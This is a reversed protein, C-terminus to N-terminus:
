IYLDKSIKSTAEKLISVFFEKKNEDLRAAPLSVSVSAVAKGDPDLIPVAICILGKIYEEDDLSYGKNRIEKLQANLEEDSTVTHDTYHKYEMEELSVDNNFAIISKGMASCYLPVEHGINLEIRLPEKSQIKDLYVVSQKDLIGLNITENTKEFLEELHPRAIRKIPLNIALKNGLTFMKVSVFYNGTEPDQEVYNLYKLTNLIRHTTSKGLGTIRSLESVGLKEHEILSEMVDFAKIISKIINRDVPKEL